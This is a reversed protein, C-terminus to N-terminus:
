QRVVAWKMSFLIALVENKANKEIGHKNLVVMIDDIAHLFEAETIGMGEHAGPM